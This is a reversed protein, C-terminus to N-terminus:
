LRAAVEAIIEKLWGNTYDASDQKYQEVDIIPSEFNADLAQNNIIARLLAQNQMSIHLIAKLISAVDTDISDLNNEIKDIDM